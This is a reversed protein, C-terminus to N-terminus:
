RKSALSQDKSSYIFLVPISFWIMSDSMWSGSFLLMVFGFTLILMAFGAFPNQRSKIGIIYSKVLLYLFLLVGLIGFDCLIDMFINHSYFGIAYVVSGAGGGIFYTEKAYVIAKQYLEIRELSSRDTFGNHILNTIIQTGSSFASVGSLIYTFFVVSALIGVLAFVVSRFNIKRLKRIIFYLLIIGVLILAGKGGTVAIIFVDAVMFFLVIIKGLFTNFIKFGFKERESFRAYLFSGFSYAGCYALTQRDVAFDTYYGDINQFVVILSCITIFMFFPAIWKFVKTQFNDTTLWFAMLMTSAARTGFSLFEGSITQFQRNILVTIIMGILIGFYLFFFWNRTNKGKTNLRVRSLLLFEMISFLLCFIALYRLTTSESIGFLNAIILGFSYQFISIIILVGEM